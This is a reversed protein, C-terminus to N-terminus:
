RFDQLITCYIFGSSGVLYSMLDVANPTTSLAAMGGPFKWASGFALSRGGTSDQAVAIVGSQGSKANIPNALTRNGGLPQTYFNIGASLDPTITPADPLLMVAAADYIAKPTLAKAASNGALVDAAIAAPVTITQDVNAPGGGTALGAGIIKGYSVFASASLAIIWSSYSTGDGSTASLITIVGTTPDHSLVVGTMQQTPDSAAAAVMTQGPSFLKGKQIAFTKNGTGLTNPTNSTAQTGPALLASAAAALAQDRAQEVIRGGTLARFNTGDYVLIVISGAPMEGGTLASTGDARLVPRVGLGNINATTPGTNDFAPVVRLTLGLKLATPVPDPLTAVIANVTGTDFVFGIRGERIVDPDPLQDFGAAVGAFEAAVAEARASTYPEINQGSGGYYGNM